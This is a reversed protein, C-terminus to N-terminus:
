QVVRVRVPVVVAPAGMPGSFVLSTEYKGPALKELNVEVQVVDGAYPSGAAPTTGAQQHVRLWPEGGTNLDYAYKPWSASVLLVRAQPAPGGPHYEVDVGNPTVSLIPRGTVQLVFDRDEAGCGNAAQLRFGFAGLEEPVGSITDGRLELGPPLEGQVVSLSMGGDVCRGDVHTELIARYPSGLAAWPLEHTRFGAAGGSLNWALLLLLPMARRFSWM